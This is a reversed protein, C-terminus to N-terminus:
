SKVKISLIEQEMIVIALFTPERLYIYAIDISLYIINTLDILFEETTNIRIVLPFHIGTKELSILNFNIFYFRSSISSMVGTENEASTLLVSDAFTSCNGYM